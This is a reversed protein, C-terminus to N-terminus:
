AAWPDIIRLGCDQFDAVNRTALAAHRSRAIAAIMGDFQSIPRGLADRAAVIKAFSRAADEDFPLIRGAFEQDFTKEIALQLASRRRGVPLSQLGYLMEAQTIATTFINVPEQEKFWRLVRPSPSPRIEESLVNTDLVIM